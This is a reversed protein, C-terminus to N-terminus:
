KHAQYDPSSIIKKKRKKEIKNVRLYAMSDEQKYKRNQPTLILSRIMQLVFQEMRMGYVSVWGALIVPLMLLTAIMCQTAFDAPIVMAIPVAYALGIGVCIIQRTTVLGFLKPEYDRIDKTMEVEIM